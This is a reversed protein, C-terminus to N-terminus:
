TLSWFYIIHNPDMVDDCSGDGGIVWGGGKPLTEKERLM